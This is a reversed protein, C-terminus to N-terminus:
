KLEAITIRATEYVHFVVTYGEGLEKMATMKLALSTNVATM